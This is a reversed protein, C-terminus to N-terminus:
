EQLGAGTTSAVGTTRMNSGAKFGIGTDVQLDLSVQAVSPACGALHNKRKAALMVRAPAIIGDVPAPLSSLQFDLDSDVTELRLAEPTESKYLILAKANKQNNTILQRTEDSKDLDAFAKLQEVNSEVEAIKGFKIVTLKPTGVKLWPLKMAYTGKIDNFRQQMSQTAELEALQAVRKREASLTKASERAEDLLPEAFTKLDPFIKITEDLDQRSSYVLQRCRVTMNNLQGIRDKDNLKKAGAIAIEDASCQLRNNVFFLSAFSYGMLLAVCAIAFCFSSLVLFNGRANRIPQTNIKANGTSNIKRTDKNM